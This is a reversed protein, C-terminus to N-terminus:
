NFTILKKFFEITEKMKILNIYFIKLTNEMYLMEQISKM